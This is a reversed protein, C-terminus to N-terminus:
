ALAKRYRKLLLSAALWSLLALGSAIGFLTAFGLQKAIYGGAMASIMYSLLEACVLVSFDTGPQDPSAAEMFLAYLGVMEMYRLMSLSMALFGLMPTHGLTGLASMVGLAHISFVLYCVVRLGSLSLLVKDPNSRMLWRAAIVSGILGAITAASGQLGGAESLRLGNHMLYSSEMTRVMGESARYVLALGLISWAGPRQLLPAAVRTATGKSGPQEQMWPLVALPLLSVAAMALLTATWGWVEFLAMSLTGGVIVGVAVAAAQIGNGTPRESPKLLRTAFGDTAIDQTAISLAILMGALLVATIHGPDSLALLAIGASTCLQTILVWGRRHGLRGFGHSGGATGLPIQSDAAADARVAHRDQGAWAWARLAAPVAMILLYSPVSQALYLAAVLAWRQRGQSAVPSGTSLVADPM